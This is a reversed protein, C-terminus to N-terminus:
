RSELTPGQLKQNTSIHSNIHLDTTESHVQTYIYIHLLPSSPKLPIFEYQIYEDRQEMPKRSCILKWNHEPLICSCLVTTGAPCICAAQQKKSVSATQCIFIANKQANQNAKYRLHEHLQGSQTLVTVSNGANRRSRKAPM